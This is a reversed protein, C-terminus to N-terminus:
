LGTKGTDRGVFVKGVGQERLTSPDEKDIFCLVMSVPFSKCCTQTCLYLLVPTSLDVSAPSRSPSTLRLPPLVPGTKLVGKSRHETVDVVSGERDALSVARLTPRQRPPLSIKKIRNDDNSDDNNNRSHLHCLVVQCHNLYFAEM